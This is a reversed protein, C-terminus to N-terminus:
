TCRSTRGGLTRHPTSGCGRGYRGREQHTGPCACLVAKTRQRQDAATMLSTMPHQKQHRRSSLSTWGQISTPTWPRTAAPARFLRHPMPPPIATEWTLQRLKPAERGRRFWLASRVVEQESHPALVLADATASVDVAAEFVLAHDGLRGSFSASASLAHDVRFSFPVSCSGRRRTTSFDVVYTHGRHTYVFVMTVRRSGTEAQVAFWGLRGKLLRCVPTDPLGSDRVGACPQLRSVGPGMEPDALLRRNLARREATATKM